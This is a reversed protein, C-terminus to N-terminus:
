AGELVARRAEIFRKLAEPEVGEEPADPSEDTLSYMVGILAIGDAICHHIRTIVASGRVGHDDYHEVVTMNWLPKNPDLAQTALSACYAELEAKGGPAPLAARLVHDGLEFQEAGQWRAGLADNLPIQRFRGFSLFREAIIRRLDALALRESLVMLGVIMMLNCDSDMRLWATDVRGMREGELGLTQALVQGLGHPQGQAAVPRRKAQPRVATTAKRAAM